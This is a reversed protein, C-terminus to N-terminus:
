DLNNEAQVFSKAQVLKSIVQILEKRSIGLNATDRKVIIDEVYNVQNESKLARKNRPFYNEYTIPNRGIRQLVNCIKQKTVIDLGLELCSEDCHGRLFPYRTNM